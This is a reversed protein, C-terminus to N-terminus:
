EKNYQLIIDLHVNSYIFHGGTKWAKKHLFSWMKPIADIMEEHGSWGGTSIVLVGDELKVYSPYHWNDKLYNALGKFDFPDWNQIMHITQETPYGDYDLM